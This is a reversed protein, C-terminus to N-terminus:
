AEFELKLRGGREGEMASYTIVYCFAASWYILSFYFFEVATEIPWGGTFSAVVMVAWVIIFILLLSKLQSKPLLIRWLALHVCWAVLLAGAAFLLAAM